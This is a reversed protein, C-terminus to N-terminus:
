PYICVSPVATVKSSALLTALSCRGRPLQDGGPGEHSYSRCEGSSTNGLLIDMISGPQFLRAAAGLVILKRTRVIQPVIVIHSHWVGHLSSLHRETQCSAYLTHMLEFTKGLIHLWGQDGRGKRYRCASGPTRQNWGCVSLQAENRIQGQCKSFYSLPLSGPSQLRWIVQTSVGGLGVIALVLCFGSGVGGSPMATCLFILPAPAVGASCRVATQATSRTSRKERQLWGLGCCRGMEATTGRWFGLVTAPV